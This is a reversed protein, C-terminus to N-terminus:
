KSFSELLTVIKNSSMIVYIALLLVGIILLLRINSQREAKARTNQDGYSKMRLGSKVRNKMNEVSLESDEAPSYKKIREQLEEKAEDYYRPKYDFSKPKAKGGFGIKIM